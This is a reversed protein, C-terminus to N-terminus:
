DSIWSTDQEPTELGTVSITTLTERKRKQSRDDFEAHDPPTPGSYAFRLTLGPRDAAHGHGYGDAM